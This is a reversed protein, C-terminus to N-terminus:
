RGNGERQPGKAPEQCPIQQMLLSSIPSLKLRKRSAVGQHSSAEVHLKTAPFLLNQQKTIIFHALPKTTFGLLSREM